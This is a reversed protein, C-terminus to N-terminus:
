IQTKKKLDMTTIQWFVPFDFVDPFCNGVVSKLLSKQSKKCIAVICRFTLVLLLKLTSKPLKPKKQPLIKPTNRSWTRSWRVFWDFVLNKYTFNKIEDSNANYSIPVLSFSPHFSFQQFSLQSLNLLLDFRLRETTQVFM